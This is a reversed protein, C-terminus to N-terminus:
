DNNFELNAMVEIFFASLNLEKNVVFSSKYQYENLLLILQPIDEKKFIDFCKQYLSNFINNDGLDINLAVWKRAETFNKERVYGLVEKIKDEVDDVLINSDIKGLTTYPQLEVLVKRFDPFFKMIFQAIAQKEFEVNEKTLIQCVKKHFEGALKAKESKPIRFEVIALRSRLPEIIKNAFNATFIFGCNKSFTEIFNRLAPQTFNSNLGDAEDLIVYKREGSFSVSSAFSQIETRLTDINGYLSSNILIYEFGLEELMARAISTKGTGPGGVLLLNPIVKKDVHSQFLVKYEEPLICDKVTHPRYKECLLVDELM